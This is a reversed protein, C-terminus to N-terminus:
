FQGNKQVRLIHLIKLNTIKGVFFTHGGMAGGGSLGKLYKKTLFSFFNYLVTWLFHQGSNPQVYSIWSTVRFLRWWHELLTHVRNVNKWNVKYQGLFNSLNGRFLSSISYTYLIYWEFVLVYMTYSNKAIFKHSLQLVYLVSVSTYM